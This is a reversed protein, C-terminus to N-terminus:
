FGNELDIFEDWTYEKNIEKTVISSKDVKGFGCNKIDGSEFNVYVSIKHSVDVDKYLYYGRIVKHMDGGCCSFIKDDKVLTLMDEFNTYTYACEITGKGFMSEVIPDRGDIDVKFYTTRKIKYDSAFDPVLYAM